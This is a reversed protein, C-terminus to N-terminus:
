YDFRWYGRTEVKKLDILLVGSNHYPLKSLGLASKRKKDVTPEIGMGIVCDKLDTNWLETLDGRVITDGDLYLIRDISNPLLKDLLLRALIVPNWGTTKFDFKFYNNMEQLHIFSVERNYDRVYDRIKNEVQEDVNLTMFFFHINEVNKNNEMISTASAMVQPVFKDNFTYLINM